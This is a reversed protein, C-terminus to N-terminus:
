KNIAGTVLYVGEKKLFSEPNHQSACGAVIIRANKNFARIRAVAQRSKKEAEKTVACTNLVYLDAYSLKDTVEYGLEKLGTALAASECSNVKCGLTFIVAKM